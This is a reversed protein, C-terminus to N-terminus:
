GPEAPPAGSSATPMEILVVHFANVPLSVL